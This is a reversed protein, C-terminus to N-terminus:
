KMTNGKRSRAVLLRSETETSEGMRSIDDMFPTMYYNAEQTVIIELTM